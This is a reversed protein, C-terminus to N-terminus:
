GFCMHSGGAGRAPLLGEGVRKAFGLDWLAGSCGGWLTGPCGASGGWREGPVQVALDRCLGPAGADRM